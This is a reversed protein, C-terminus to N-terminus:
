WMKNHVFFFIYGQLTPQTGYVYMLCHDVTSEDRQEWVVREKLFDFTQPFPAAFLPRRQFPAASM